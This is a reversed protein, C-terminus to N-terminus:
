WILEKISKGYFSKGEKIIESVPPLNKQARKKFEKESIYFPSISVGYKMRIKPSIENLTSTIKNKQQLNGYVICLDLDSEMTEEKRIVSGFLIISITYTGISKKIDNLLIKIFDNEINLLPIIGEKVLYHERNLTFLHDRGGRQRIVIGTNELNTLVSLSTKPSIGALRAIERGSLGLASNHIARLVAVDATRTFIENLVNNIKM